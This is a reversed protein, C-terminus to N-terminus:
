SCSGHNDFAACSHSALSQLGYEAWYPLEQRRLPVPRAEWRAPLPLHSRQLSPCVSEDTVWEHRLTSSSSLPILGATRILHERGQTTYQPLTPPEPLHIRLLKVPRGISRCNLTTKSAM